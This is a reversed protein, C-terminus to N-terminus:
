QKIASTSSGILKLLLLCHDRGEVVLLISLCSPSVSTRENSSHAGDKEMSKWRSRLAANQNQQQTNKIEPAAPKPSTPKKRSDNSCLAYCYICSHVTCKNYQQSIFLSQASERSKKTNMGNEDNHNQSRSPSFNVTVESSFVLPIMYIRRSQFFLEFVVFLKRNIIVVILV